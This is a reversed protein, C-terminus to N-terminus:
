DVRLASRPEITAARRAPVFAAVLAVALLLVAVAAFTAPDSPTTGYLFANLTRTAGLAALTGVGLGGLALRLGQGLTMRFVSRRTAGLALRVGIEYTRQATSYSVVGYIGIAALLLATAGFAAFVIVLSRSDATSGAVLDELPRVEGVPVNPNLRAVLGRVDSAVRGTPAWTRLLLSMAEPIRRTIAVAQPYPMYLCGGDRVFGPITGALDFQRVDAVVGVVTRARDEFVARVHKGVPDEGPWLLTATSASVMVVPETGEGDAETFARGRIVPIALLEFYAPTVAGAWALPASKDAPRLPQGEVELPLIPIEPGLPLANAAAAYTVGPIERARALLQEYFAL